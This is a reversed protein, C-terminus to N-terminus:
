FRMGRFEHGKVVIEGTDGHLSKLGILSAATVSFESSDGVTEGTLISPQAALEVVQAPRAGQADIHLTLSGQKLRVSEEAEGDLFYATLAGADPDLVFEVQAVEDGLEVLTGGHPARHQHAAAAAAGATEALSAAPPAERGCAASWLLVM